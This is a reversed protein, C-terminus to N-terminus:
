ENLTNIQLKTETRKSEINELALVVARDIVEHLIYDPVETIEANFNTYDIKSPYKVYTIDATYANATMSFPDIYIKLTNDEITAVPTDIWPNNNYTKLFRHAQDHDILICKSQKDGFHLTCDVYFMRNISYGDKFFNNLVLVNSSPDPYVLAQAKDTVVLRQLDAIRKVAGEFGIKLANNGTYKNCIVEVYAQNIFLQEEEPLFAPCGGYAVAEANKDMSVKFAKYIDAVKM